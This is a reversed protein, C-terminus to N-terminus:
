RQHQQIPFRRYEIEQLGDLQGNRNDRLMHVFELRRDIVNSIAQKHAQRKHDAEHVQNSCPTRRTHQQCEREGAHHADENQRQNNKLKQVKPHMNLLTDLLEKYIM